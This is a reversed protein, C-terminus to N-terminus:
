QYQIQNEKMKLHLDGAAPMILHGGAPLDQSLFGAAPMIPPWWCMLVGEQFVWRFGQIWKQKGLGGASPM